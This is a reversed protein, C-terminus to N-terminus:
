PTKELKESFDVIAQDAVAGPVSGACRLPQPIGGAAPNLSITPPRLIVRDDSHEGGLRSTEAADAKSPSVLEFATTRM